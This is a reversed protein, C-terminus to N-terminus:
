LEKKLVTDIYKKYRSKRRDRYGGFVFENASDRLYWRLEVGDWEEPMEDVRGLTEKKLEDLMETIFQRKEFLNM